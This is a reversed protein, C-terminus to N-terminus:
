RNKRETRMKVYLSNIGFKVVLDELEKKQSVYDSFEKKLFPEDSDVFHNLHKYILTMDCSSFSKRVRLYPNSQLKCPEKNDMKDNENVPVIGVNEQDGPCDKPGSTSASKKLIVNSLTGFETWFM